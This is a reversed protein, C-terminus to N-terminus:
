IILVHANIKIDTYINNYWLENFYLNCFTVFEYNYPLRMDTPLEM